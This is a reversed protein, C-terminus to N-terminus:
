LAHRDGALWYLGHSNTRLVGLSTYFLKCWRKDIQTILFVYNIVRWVNTQQKKKNIQGTVPIEAVTAGIPTFNQM